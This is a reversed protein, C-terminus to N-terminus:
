KTKQHKPFLCKYSYFSSDVTIEGGPQLTKDSFEITCIPSKQIGMVVSHVSSLAKNVKITAKQTTGMGWKMAVLLLCMILMCFLVLLADIITSSEKM